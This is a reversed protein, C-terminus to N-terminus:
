VATFEVPNLCFLFHACLVRTILVERPEVVRARLAYYPEEFLEVDGVLDFDEVAVLFGHHRRRFEGLDMRKTFRGDNSDRRSTAIGALGNDQGLAAEHGLIQHVMCGLTPPQHRFLPLIALLIGHTALRLIPQPIRIVHM